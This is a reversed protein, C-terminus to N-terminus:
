VCLFFLIKEFILMYHTNLLSLIIMISLFSNIDQSTPMSLKLGINFGLNFVVGQLVPSTKHNELCFMGVYAWM